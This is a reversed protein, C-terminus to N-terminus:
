LREVVSEWEAISRRLQGSNAIFHLTVSFRKIGRFEVNLNKIEELEIGEIESFKRLALEKLGADNPHWFGFYESFKIRIRKRGSIRGKVNLVKEQELAKIFDGKDIFGAIYAPIETFEPVSQWIEQLEEESIIGLERARELIKEKIVSIKKLFALFHQRTIGIRSLVFIDSHQVQAYPVDLWIGGFKTTKVSINLNPPRRTEGKKITKIDTPLFQPLAGRRYDLEMLVGFRQEAWKAFAREGLFGRITDTWLQGLDRQRAGGYDTAALRPALRLAHTAVKFYDDESLVASSWSLWEAWEEASSFCGLDGARVAGKCVKDIHERLVEDLEGRKILAELAKKCASVM